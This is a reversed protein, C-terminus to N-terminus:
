GPVMPRGRLCPPSSASDSGAAHGAGCTVVLVTVDRYPIAMAAAQSRTWGRSVWRAAQGSWSPGSGTM